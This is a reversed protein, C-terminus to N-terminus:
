RRGHSTRSAKPRPRPRRSAPRGAAGRKAADGARGRSMGAAAKLEQYADAVHRALDPLRYMTAGNGVFGFDMRGSDSTLTANLGISAAVASVPFTGVLRAGNSYMTERGGPVNSIVLNALPRTVQAIGPAARLEALGLVAVAYAMAADKSM